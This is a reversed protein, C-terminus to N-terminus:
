QDNNEASSPEFYRRLLKLLPLGAKMRYDFNVYSYKRPYKHIPHAEDTQCSPANSIIHMHDAIIGGNIAYGNRRSIGAVTNKAYLFAEILDFSGRGSIPINPLSPPAIALPTCLFSSDYLKDYEAKGGIWSYVDNVGLDALKRGAPASPSTYITDTSRVYASYTTCNNAADRATCTAGEAPGIVQSPEIHDLDAILVSKLTALALGDYLTKTDALKAKAEESAKDADQSYPFVSTLARLNGPIYINGSVYITGVGKYYGKIVLDGDVFVEGSIKIPNLVTGILALNGKQV